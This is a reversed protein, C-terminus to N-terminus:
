VKVLQQSGTQFTLSLPASLVPHEYDLRVTIVDTTTDAGPALVRNQDDLLMAVVDYELLWSDPKVWIDWDARAFDLVGKQTIVPWQAPTYRTTATYAVSVDDIHESTVPLTTQGGENTFTFSTAAAGESPVLDVTAADVLDHATVIVRTAVTIQPNVVSINSSS